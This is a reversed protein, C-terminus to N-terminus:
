GSSKSMLAAIGLLLIVPGLNALSLSDVGYHTRVIWSYSAAILLAAGM